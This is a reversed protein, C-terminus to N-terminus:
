GGLVRPVQGKGGGRVGVHQHRTHHYNIGSISRRSSKGGSSSSSSSSSGGLFDHFRSNRNSRDHADAGSLISRKKRLGNRNYDSHHHQKVGREIKKVHGESEEYLVSLYAPLSYDLNRFPLVLPSNRYKMSNENSLKSQALYDGTRFLNHWVREMAGTIDGGWRDSTETGCLDVSGNNLSMLKEWYVFPRRQIAEKSVAFQAATSSSMEKKMFSDLNYNDEWEPPFRLKDSSINTGKYLHPILKMLCEQPSHAWQGHFYRYNLSIFDITHRCEVFYTFIRPILRLEMHHTPQSHVFLTMDALTDYRKLIHALYTTAEKGNIIEDFASAELVGSPLEDTIRVGGHIEIKKMLRASTSITSNWKQLLNKPLCYPCKYYVSITFTIQSYKYSFASLWALDGTATECCRPLVIEIHFSVSTPKPTTNSECVDKETIAKRDRTKSNQLTDVIEKLPGSKFEHYKDSRHIHAFTEEIPIVMDMWYPTFLTSLSYRERNSLFESAYQSRLQDLKIEKVSSVFIIPLKSERLTDDKDVNVLIPIAGSLLPISLAYEMYISNDVDTHISIIYKSKLAIDYLDAQADNIDHCRIGKDLKVLDEVKSNIDTLVNPHNEIGQYRNVFCSILMNRDNDGTKVARLKHDNSTIKKMVESPSSVGSPMFIVKRKCDIHKFCNMKSIPAHYPVVLKVLKDHTLSLDMLSIRSVTRGEFSSNGPSFPAYLSRLHKSEQLFNNLHDTASLVTFQPNPVSNYLKNLRNEQHNDWEESNHQELEQPTWPSLLSPQKSKVNLQSAWYSYCCSFCCLIKDVDVKWVPITETLCNIHYAQQSCNQQSIICAEDSQMCKSPSNMHISGAYSMSSSDHVDSHSDLRRTRRKRSLLSLPNLPLPLTIDLENKPSGEGASSSVSPSSLSLHTSGQEGDEMQQEHDSGEGYLANTRNIKNKIHRSTVLHSYRAVHKVVTNNRLTTTTLRHLTDGLLPDSLFLLLISVIIPISLLLYISIM